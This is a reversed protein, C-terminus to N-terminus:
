LKMITYNWVYMFIISYIYFYLLMYTHLIVLSGQPMSQLLPSQQCDVPAM